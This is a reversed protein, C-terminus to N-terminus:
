SAIPDCQLEGVKHYEIEGMSKLGGDDFYSRELAPIARRKQRVNIFSAGKHKDCFFRKMQTQFLDPNMSMFLSGTMKRMFVERNDRDLGLRPFTYTESSFDNDGSDTYVDYELIHILPNPSFFKWTTNFFFLNGYPNFIFSLKRNLISDPNSWLLLGM